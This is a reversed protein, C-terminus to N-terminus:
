KEFLHRYQPTIDSTFSMMGEFTKYHQIMAKIVNFPLTAIHVGIEAVERAQRTNRISAAIVESEYGYVEFIQLIKGVLDVGSFIGNDHGLEQLALIEKDKFVDEVLELNEIREVIKYDPSSCILGYDFYDEKNYDVGRKLGFKLRIYDDIRGAFPSVYTAGAKAALLGQEPSMVLTVNTDIDNDHLAKIAKLGDFINKDGEDICSCVPIKVVVKGFRRFKDYLLKGQVIMDEATGGLVELSVPGPVTKVIEGIYDEMSIKGKRRDVAKKILSPNTTVGDVIGWSISEKIEQIEATDIFIKLHSEEV